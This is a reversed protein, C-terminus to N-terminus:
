ISSSWLISCVKLLSMNLPLTRAARRTIEMSPLPEDSGRSLMTAVFSCCDVVTQASSTFFCRGPWGACSAM